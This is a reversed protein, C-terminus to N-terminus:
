RPEGLRKLGRRYQQPTQGTERLYTRRFHRANSFGCGAAVAELKLTSNRLLTKAREVRLRDLEGHLTRGVHTKFLDQISRLTVQLEAALDKLTIPEQYHRRLFSLARAAEAHPIVLTDTSRRTVIGLPPIYFDKTPVKKGRMLRDLLAAAEYGIRRTNPAVSTLPPDSLECLLEDNDVGVVAVQDPVALGTNRCANLVQQGRIDNCALIAVPKPLRDLWGVLCDESGVGEQEFDVTWLHSATTPAAYAHCGLGRRALEKALLDGRVDSYDVGPFGCFGFHRFGCEAFYEVVLKVLKQEDNHLSPLSTGRGMRRLDVVPIGLALLKAAMAGDEVRALIGDGEWRDLWAPLGSQLEREQYDIRWRGREHAYQAVGLLLGRGYARSSEILVAVRATTAPQFIRGARRRKPNELGGDAEAGGAPPLEKAAEPETGARGPIPRERAHQKM